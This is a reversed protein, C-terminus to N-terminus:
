GGEAASLIAERISPSTLTVNVIFKEEELVTEVILKADAESKSVIYTEDKAVIKLL